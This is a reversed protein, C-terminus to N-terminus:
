APTVKIVVHGGANFAPDDQGNQAAKMNPYKASM